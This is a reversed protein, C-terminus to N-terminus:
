KFCPLGLRPDVGSPERSTSVLVRFRPRGDVEIVGADRYHAAVYEYVYRYDDVFEGKFEDFAGIVVPVSQRQMRAVAQRQHVENEYFTLGFTGQGAAVLRRAFVPVEPAHTALLVRDTPQTCEALYRSATLTGYTGADTWTQPPLSSLEAKTAEFPTWPDWSHTLGAAVLRLPVGTAAFLAAAIIVMTASPLVRLPTLLPGGAPPKGSPRSREIGLAGAIWAALLVAPVIADGFRAFLNGRLFFSNVVATLALLALGTAITTPEANGRVVLSVLAAAAAAVIIWLSFYALAALNDRAGGAETRVRPWRLATRSSEGRISELTHRAYPVLGAQRQVWIVSPLLLLLTLGAYGILRHLRRQLPLPGAALLAVGAAIGVYVGFDHRFLTAVATWASLMALAPWSPRLLWMRVLLAAVLLVVVKEYNYLRPQAAIVCAVALLAVTWRRSLHLALLFVVGASLALAGVTLYAESLFTRGWLQQAWASMAYGLSPRAGRLEAEAFDRLPQEGNLLMDTRILHVFHDNDFGALTGGLSNFRLLFVAAAIAVALIVAAAVRRWTWTMGGM